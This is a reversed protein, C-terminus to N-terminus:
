PYLSGTDLGNSRLNTDTIALSTYSAPSKKGTILQMPGPGGDQGPWSAWLISNVAKNKLLASNDVQDGM